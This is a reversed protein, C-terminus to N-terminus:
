TLSEMGDRITATYCKYCMRCDWNDRQIAVLASKVPYGCRFCCFVEQKGGLQYLQLDGRPAWAYLARDARPKIPAFPRGAGPHLPKKADKNMVGFTFDEVPRRRADGVVGAAGFREYELQQSSNGRQLQPSEGRRHLQHIGKRFSFHKRKYYQPGTQYKQRVSKYQTARRLLFSGVQGKIGGGLRM